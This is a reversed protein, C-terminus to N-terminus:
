VLFYVDPKEVVDSQIIPIEVFESLSVIQSDDSIFYYGIPIVLFLVVVISMVNFISLLDNSVNKKYICIIGIIGICLIIPMLIVNSGLFNIDINANNAFYLRTYSFLILLIIMFSIVLSIKNSRFLSKLLFWSISVISISLILPIFIDELPIEELNSQYLILIPM